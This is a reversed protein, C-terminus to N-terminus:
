NQIHGEREVSAHGAQKKPVVRYSWTLNWSLLESHFLRTRSTSTKRTKKSNERSTLSSSVSHLNFKRGRRYSMKQGQKGDIDCITVVCHMPPIPNKEHIDFMANIQESM